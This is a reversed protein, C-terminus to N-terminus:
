ALSVQQCGNGDADCVVFDGHIEVRPKRSGDATGGVIRLPTADRYAFHMDREGTNEPDDRSSLTWPEDDAVSSAFKLIAPDDGTSGSGNEGGPKVTVDGAVNLEGRIRNTRKNADFYTDNGVSLRRSANVRDTRLADHVNVVREGNEADADADDGDDAGGGGGAGNALRRGTIDLADSYKSMCIRGEDGPDKSVRGLGTEFCSQGRVGAGSQAQVYDATLSVHASKDPNTVHMGVRDGGEADEARGYSLRGSEKLLLSQSRLQEDEANERARVALKHDQLDDDVNELSDRVDELVVDELDSVRTKTTKSRRENRKMDELLRFVIFAMIGFSVILLFLLFGTLVAM